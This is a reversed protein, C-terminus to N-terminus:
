FVEENLLPKYVRRIKWLRYEAPILVTYIFYVPQRAEDPWDRRREQYTSNLKNNVKVIPFIDSECYDTLLIISNKIM